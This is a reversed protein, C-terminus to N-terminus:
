TAVSFAWPPAVLRLRPRRTAVPRDHVSTGEAGGWCEYRIKFCFGPTSPLVHPSVSAVVTWVDMRVDM